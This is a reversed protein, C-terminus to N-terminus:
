VETPGKAAGKKLLRVEDHLRRVSWGLEATQALLRDQAAADLGIIERLHCPGVGQLELVEPRRHCLVYIGVARCLNARSFPLRPQTALKRFSVQKRGRSHWRDTDGGYVRELVLKGVHIMLTTGANGHVDRLDEVLADIDPGESLVAPVHPVASETWCTMASTIHMLHAVRGFARLTSLKLRSESRSKTPFTRFTPRIWRFSRGGRAPLCTRASGLTSECLGRRLPRTDCDGNRTVCGTDNGTTSGVQRKGAACSPLGRTRNPRAPACADGTKKRWLAGMTRESTPEATRTATADNAAKNQPQLVPSLTSQARGGKKLTGPSWTAAETVVVPPQVAVQM